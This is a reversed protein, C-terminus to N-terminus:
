ATFDSTSRPATRGAVLRRSHSTPQTIIIMAASLAHPTAGASAGVTAAVGDPDAVECATATVGDGLSVAVGVSDNVTCGLQAFTTELM